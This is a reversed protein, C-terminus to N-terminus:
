QVEDHGYPVAIPPYERVRVGTSVMLYQSLGKEHRHHAENALRPILLPYRDLDLRIFKAIDALTAKLLAASDELGFTSSRRSIHMNGLSLQQLPSSLRTAKKLRLFPTNQAPTPALNSNNGTSILCRCQLIRNEKRAQTSQGTPSKACASLLAMPVPRNADWGCFTGLWHYVEDDPNLPTNHVKDPAKTLGFGRYHLTDNFGHIPQDKILIYGQSGEPFKLNECALYVTAKTIHAPVERYIVAAQMQPEALVSLKQTKGNLTLWNLSESEEDGDTEEESDLSLFSWDEARRVEIWPEM